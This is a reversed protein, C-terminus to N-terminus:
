LGRAKIEANILELKRKEEIMKNKYVSRDNYIKEMLAALFGQKKRSFFVGLGTMCVDEAHMKDKYENAVGNLFDDVSYKKVTKHGQMKNVHGVFMEPSINYQMILHPYLSNLDFSVVWEYMGVKPDKVYGGEIIYDNNPDVTMQPVVINKDMLYNHIIADWMRVTTLSDAYNIKGEYSMTMVQAIFGMKEELKVVLDVDVINYDIFKEYDNKYLAQLSEHESYDLKKEGLEVYAIHDLKYSEQQSYTFKKYLNIYDLIAIGMPMFVQNDKGNIEITREHLQLWPSLKLAQDRGLIQTVRNVIYPIDFFEINWGTVIDADMSVWVDLFKMLLFAEDKCKIYHVNPKKPKYDGCGLVITKDKYRITIATIEQAAEKPHPFGNDSAVEIDIYCVTILSELWEIIGPFTDNIYPYIWNTMGYFSFGKVGDYTEMFNRAETTSTFELKDVPTGDLTRYKANGSKSNVFLYPHIQEKYKFRKGNEYGRVYVIGRNSSVDTYFKM